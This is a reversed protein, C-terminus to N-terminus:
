ERADMRAREESGGARRQPIIGVGGSRASKRGRGDRTSVAAAAKGAQSRNAVTRSHKELSASTVARGGGRPSALVAV